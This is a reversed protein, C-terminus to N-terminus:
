SVLAIGLEACRARVEAEPALAVMVGEASKGPNLDRVLAVKDALRDVDEVECASKVGFVLLRGDEALVDVEYSRGAPGAKGTADVVKQRLRIKEPVIDERRLALRLM